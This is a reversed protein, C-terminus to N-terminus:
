SESQLSGATEAKLNESAVVAKIVEQHLSVLTGFGKSCQAESLVSAGTTGFEKENKASQTGFAADYESKALGTAIVVKMTDESPTQKQAAIFYDHSLPNPKYAPEQFPLSSKINTSDPPVITEREIYSGLLKYRSGSTSLKGYKSGVPYSLDIKVPHYWLAQSPIRGEGLLCPRPEPKGESDVIQTTMGAKGAKSMAQTGQDNLVEDAFTVFSHLDFPRGNLEKVLQTYDFAQIDNISTDTTSPVRPSMNRPLLLSYQPSVHAVSERDRM